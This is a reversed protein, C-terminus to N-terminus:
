GAWRISPIRCPGHRESRQMTTRQNQRNYTYTVRDNADAADPYIEAVLLDNRAIDSDALTTGYEYRTTQDGTVPNKATLTAVLSDANYTTEVTINIENGAPPPCAGEGRGEGASPSPFQRWM